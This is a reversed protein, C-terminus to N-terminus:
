AAKGATQQAALERDVYAAGSQLMAEVQAGLVPKDNFGKIYPDTAQASISFADYHRGDDESSFLEAAIPQGNKSDLTVNFRDSGDHMALTLRTIGDEGTVAKVGPLGKAAELLKITGALLADKAAASDRQEARDRGHDIMRLLGKRATEPVFAFFKGEDDYHEYIRDIISQKEAGPERHAM